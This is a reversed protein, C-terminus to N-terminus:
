EQEGGDDEDEGLCRSIDKLLERTSFPKTVYLVAGLDLGKIREAELGRATLLIVKPAGPEASLRRCVEFGDMGPLMVDLLVLDPRWGKAEDLGDEGSSAVRVAYGKQELLFELSIVINEEDEVILIRRSM